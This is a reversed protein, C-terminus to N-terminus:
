LNANRLPLNAGYSGFSSSNKAEGASKHAHNAARACTALTTQTPKQLFM